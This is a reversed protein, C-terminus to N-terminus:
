WVAGGNDRWAWHCKLQKNTRRAPSTNQLEHDTYLTTSTKRAIDHLASRAGNRIGAQQTGYHWSERAATSCVYVHLQTSNPREIDLILEPHRKWSSYVGFSFSYNISLMQTYIQLVMHQRQHHRISFRIIITHIHTHKHLCVFVSIVSDPTQATKTTTTTTTVTQKRIEM